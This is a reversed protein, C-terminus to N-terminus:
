AEKRPEHCGCVTCEAPTKYCQICHRAVWLVEPM